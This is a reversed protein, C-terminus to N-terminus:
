HMTLKIGLCCMTAMSFFQFSLQVVVGGSSGDGSLHAGLSSLFQVATCSWTNHDLSWRRENYMHSLSTFAM